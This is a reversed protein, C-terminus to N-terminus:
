ERTSLVQQSFTMPYMGMGRPIAPGRRMSEVGKGMGIAVASPVRTADVERPQLARLRPPPTRVTM